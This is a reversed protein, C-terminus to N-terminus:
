VSLGIRDAGTIMTVVFRTYNSDFAIDTGNAGTQPNLWTEGDFSYQMTTIKVFVELEDVWIVRNAGGLVTQTWTIGGDDSIIDMDGGSGSYVVCLFRDLKESYAVAQALTGAPTTRQTWVIGDPSTMVGTTSTPGCAVFVKRKESWIVDEFRIAPTTRTVWTIGDASTMVSSTSADTAVAVFLNLSESRCVSVWPKAAAATRLQWAGGGPTCTMVRNTGDSAVAVFLNLSESYCIREWTNDQAGSQASWSQGGDVSHMGRNGTGTRALASMYGGGSVIANWENADATSSVYTFHRLAINALPHRLTTKARDIASEYTGAYFQGRADIIRMNSIASGNASTIIVFALIMNKEPPNISGAGTTVQNEVGNLCQTLTGVTGFRVSLEDDVSLSVCAVISNGATPMSPTFDLSVADGGTIAGTTFNLFTDANNFNDSGDRPFKSATTASLYVLGVPSGYGRSQSPKIGITDIASRYPKLRSESQSTNELLMNNSGPVDRAGYEIQNQAVAVSAAPVYVRTLVVDNTSPTPDSPTASATGSLVVLECDQRRRFPVSDFPSTPRTISQTTTEIARSVVMDIRPLTAHATAITVNKTTESIHTYGDPGNAVYATVALVMGGGSPSIEAGSLVAGNVLSGASVRVTDVMGAQFDEFEAPGWKYRFYFDFLEAPTSM